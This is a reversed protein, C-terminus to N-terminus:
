TKYIYTQAKYRSLRDNGEVESVNGEVESVNGEVESVNGEVESM